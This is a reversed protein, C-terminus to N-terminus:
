IFLLWSLSFRITTKVVIYCFVHCSSCISKAINVSEAGSLLTSLYAKTAISVNEFIHWATGTLSLFGCSDILAIFSTKSFIPTGSTMYWSLSPEHLLVSNIMNIFECLILCTIVGVGGGNASLLIFVMLFMICVLNSPKSILLSYHISISSDTSFFYLLVFCEVVPICGFSALFFIIMKFYPKM